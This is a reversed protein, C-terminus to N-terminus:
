EDKDESEHNKQYPEPRNQIHDRRQSVETTRSYNSRHLEDIQNQNAKISGVITALSERIERFHDKSAGAPVPVSKKTFHDLIDKKGRILLVTLPYLMLLIWFGLVLFIWATGQQLQAKFIIPIKYIKENKHDIIQLWLDEENKLPRGTYEFNIYDTNTFDVPSTKISAPRLFWPSDEHAKGNNDVLYCKTKGDMLNHAGLLSIHCNINTHPFSIKFYSSQRFSTTYYFEVEKDEPIITYNLLNDQEFISTNYLLNPPIVDNIIKKVSLERGPDVPEDDSNILIVNTMTERDAIKRLYQSITEMEMEEIKLSDERHFVQGSPYQIDHFFDSFIFLSTSLKSDQNKRRELEREDKIKQSIKKFLNVFNTVEFYEREEKDISKNRVLSNALSIQDFLYKILVKRKEIDYPECIGSFKSADTAFPYISIRTNSDLDMILRSAKIINYEFVTLEKEDELKKILKNYRGNQDQNAQTFEAFEKIKEIDQRIYSDNTKLNGQYNKDQKNVVTISMDIAFFARNFKTDDKQGFDQLNYEKVGKDVLAHGFLELTMDSFISTNLEFIVLAIAFYFSIITMFVSLLKTSSYTAGKKTPLRKGLILMVTISVISLILCILVYFPLWRILIFVIVLTIFYIVIPRPRWKSGANNRDTDQSPSTTQAHNQPEAQFAM